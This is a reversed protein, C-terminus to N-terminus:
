ATQLAELVAESHGAVKVKPFIKQIKGEKNILFTTREIGMYKKGYMSKEKWVGYKKIVEKSEDSLLPFPLEFKSRFNDHSKLSDASVGLIVTDNKGFKKNADRFDCAEQTCGPTNDKPYFYLLVNKKGKFDSLRIPGGETSPLLFDPAKSGEKLEAM